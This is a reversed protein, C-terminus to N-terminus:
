AARRAEQATAAARRDRQRQKSARWYVRAAQYCALDILEGREEHRRFATYSGCPVPRRGPEYRLLDGAMDEAVAAVVGALQADVEAALRLVGAPRRDLRWGPSAQYVRRRAEREAEIRWVWGTVADLDTGALRGALAEAAVQDRTDMFRILRAATHRARAQIRAARIGALDDGDPPDWNTGSGVSDAGSREAALWGTM